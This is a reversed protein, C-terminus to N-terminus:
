ILIVDVGTKRAYRVTSWTGSRWEEIEKNKPCAILVTSNNVIDKNRDLYPRATMRMDGNEINIANNGCMTKNTPPYIYIRMRVSSDKARYRMCIDHFQTDSGVCDGHLVIVSDKSYKDLIGVILKEHEERIGDRTGTFGIKVVVNEHLSNEM